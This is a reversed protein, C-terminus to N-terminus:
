FPLSMEPLSLNGQLGGSHIVLIKDGNKFYHKQLLDSVAYFVKSTYVIDTPISETDWFYRMFHLLESPHKAFGGFHYNHMLILKHQNESKTLHFVESELSSNNKQSSIGIVTQDNMSGNLLGALMTGSGVAAIIHTYTNLPVTDLITAAGQAGLTGYGGEPIWYRLPQHYNEIISTKNKYDARALFILKMGYDVASQLTHSLQTPKDGRIFGVSKLHQEKCACATAIIHNSYAGGFSAIETYDGNIAEELYFRLKYWKNGSIIPHVLDLRLVDISVKQDKGLTLPQIRALNTNIHVKVSNIKL